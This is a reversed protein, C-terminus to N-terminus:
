QSRCCNKRGSGYHTSGCASWGVPCANDANISCCNTGRAGCLYAYTRDPCIEAIDGAATCEDNGAAQYGEPCMLQALLIVRREEAQAVDASATEITQTAAAADKVAPAQRGSNEQSASLGGTLCIAAGLFFAPLKM